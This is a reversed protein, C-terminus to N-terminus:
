GRRTVEAGAALNREGQMIRRWADWYFLLHRAQKVVPSEEGPQQIARVGDAKLDPHGPDANKVAQEVLKSKEWFTEDNPYGLWSLLRGVRYSDKFRHALRAMGYTFSPPAQCRSLEGGSVVPVSLAVPFFRRYLLLPLYEEGGLSAPISASLEFIERTLGPVFPLVDNSYVKMANLSLRNRTRNRAIFQGVGTRDDSYHETEQRYCETFGQRLDELLSPAFIHGAAQWRPSSFLGGRRRLYEQFSPVTTRIQKLVCGLVSGEWISQMEPRLHAALHAIYLYLSPTGVENQAVYDAYGPSSYYDRRQELVTFRAGLRQAIERGFVGDADFLEERHRLTLVPPLVGLRELMCLLFRSDYGGSLALVGTGTHERCAHINRAFAEVLEELPLDRERMGGPAEPWKWYRRESLSGRAADFIRIAGPAVRRVGKVSTANGVYHGLGLFAGWGAPDMVIPVLGTATIAKIETGLLLTGEPRAWYLPQIGLFDTVMGLRNGEADWILACFAGDLRTLEELRQEFPLAVARELHNELSGHLCVPVGAILLWGQKGGTRALSVKSFKDSTTVWGVAGSECAVQQAQHWDRAQQVALMRSVTAGADIHADGPFCAALKM